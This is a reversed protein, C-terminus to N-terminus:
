RPSVRGHCKKFKVPKGNADTKGCPCPDNRGVGAFQLKNAEEVYDIGQISPFRFSAWTQNNFNTISFDGRAIVDMGIIVGFQATEEFESVILGAILVNNPLYVNVLYSNKLESGGAHTLRVSGTPILAIAKAVTPTICSRSAGTDWLASTPHLPPPPIPPNSPDYAATLSVATIIRDAPGTYKVTFAHFQKRNSSRSPSVAM